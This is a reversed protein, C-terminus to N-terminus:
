PGVVLNVTFSAGQCASAATTSMALAAPLTIPLTGNVAGVRPPADWGSGNTATTFTLTSTSCGTHGADVTFGAPGLALSGLHVAFLNPNTVVLVVDTTGGPRLGAAPTAPSLGVPAATGATGAGTGSGSGGWYAFATGDLVLVLVVALVVTLPRATM